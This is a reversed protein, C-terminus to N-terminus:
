LICIIFIEKLFTFQTTIELDVSYCCLLTLLESAIDSIDENKNITEM